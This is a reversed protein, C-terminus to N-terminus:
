LFPIKKFATAFTAGVTIHLAGLYEPFSSSIDSRNNGREYWYSGM